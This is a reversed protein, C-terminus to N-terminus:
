LLISSREPLFDNIDEGELVGPTGKFEEPRQQEVYERVSDPIDHTTDPAVLDMFEQHELEGARRDPWNKDNQPLRETTKIGL